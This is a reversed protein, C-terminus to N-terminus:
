PCERPSPDAAKKWIHDLQNRYLEPFSRLFSIIYGITALAMTKGHIGKANTIRVPLERIPSKLIPDVGASFTHIWKLKKSSACYAEPLRGSGCWAYLIETDIGKSIAEEETRCYYVKGVAAKRVEELHQETIDHPIGSSRQFLLLVDAM